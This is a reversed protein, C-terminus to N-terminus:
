NEYTSCSQAGDVVMIAGNEHAIKAIEKIPNIIGLVNSVHM